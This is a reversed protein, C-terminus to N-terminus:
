QVLEQDTFLGQFLVSSLYREAASPLIVVINKGAFEPSEALRQAAVVAAGSSIGALIGEEQMLRQAMAISALSVAVSILGAVWYHQLHGAADRLEALAAGRHDTERDMAGDLVTEIDVAQALDSRVRAGM